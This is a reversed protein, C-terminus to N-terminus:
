EDPPMSWGAINEYAQLLDGSGVERGGISIPYCEATAAGLVYTADAYTVVIAYPRADPNTTSCREKDWTPLADVAAVFRPADRVLADRPAPWSPEAVVPDGTAPTWVAHCLRVSVPQPPLAPVPGERNVDFPEDPCPNTRAPDAAIAAGNTPDTDENTTPSTQLFHPAVIVIGALVLLAIGGIVRRRQRLRHAQEDVHGRDPRSSSGDPSGTMRARMRDVDRVVPKGKM